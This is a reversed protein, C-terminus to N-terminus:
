QGAAVAGCIQSLKLRSKNITIQESRSGYDYTGDFKSRLPTFAVTPDSRSGRFQFNNTTAGAVRLDLRALFCLIGQTRGNCTHLALHLARM